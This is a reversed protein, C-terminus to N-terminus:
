LAGTKDADVKLAQNDTTNPLKKPFFRIKIFFTNLAMPVVLMAFLILAVYVAKGGQVAFGGFLTVIALILGIIGFIINAILLAWILPKKQKSIVLSISGGYIALLIVSLIQGLSLLAYFSFLCGFVNLIVAIKKM